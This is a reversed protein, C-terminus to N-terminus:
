DSSQRHMGRSAGVVTNLALVLGSASLLTQSGMRHPIGMNRAVGPADDRDSMVSLRRAIPELDGYQHRVRNIGCLARLDEAGCEMLRMITALGISFVTALLAVAASGALSSELAGALLGLAIVVASLTMLYHGVRGTSEAVTSNRTMQLTYHETTLITLLRSTDDPWGATTAMRATM